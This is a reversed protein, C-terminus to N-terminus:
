PGPKRWAWFGVHDKIVPWILYRKEPAFAYRLEKLPTDRALGWPNTWTFSMRAVVLALGYAACVVTAIWAVGVLVQVWRTPRTEMGALNEMGATRAAGLLGALCLLYELRAGRKGILVALTKKGVAGDSELDRLNNVVLIATILFGMPLSSWVVMPTLTGTQVYYTGCVAVLGFFIFVFLDGLGLSALPSPGGSYALASLISALGVVLIPWGGVMVLYLGVMLSCGFTVVMGLLVGKPSILGTQTVRIPGLREESDIGKKFDFYDNALNVGIQLLLAGGMAALAPLLTFVKDSLALAIGVIVPALAAPLTKPRVALKWAGLKSSSESQIM